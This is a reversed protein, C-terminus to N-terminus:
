RQEQAPKGADLIIKLRAYTDIYSAYKDVAKDLQAQIYTDLATFKNEECSNM